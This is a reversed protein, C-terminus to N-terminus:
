VYRPEVGILENEGRPNLQENVLFSFTQFYGEHFGLYKGNLWIDAAYDVGAFVLKVLQNQLELNLKFQHKYWVAGSIDHNELWWNAPVNIDQWNYQSLKPLQKTPQPRVDNDKTSILRDQGKLQAEPIFQWTGSLSHTSSADATVLSELGANYNPISSAIASRLNCFSIIEIVLISVAILYYIYRNFKFKM